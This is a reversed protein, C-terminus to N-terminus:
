NAESTKHTISEGTLDLLRGISLTKQPFLYNKCKREIIRLDSMLSAMQESDFEATPLWRRFDNISDNSSRMSEVVLEIPWAHHSFENIISRGESFDVVIVDLPQVGQALEDDLSLRVGFHTGLEFGDVRTDSRNAKYVPMYAEYKQEKLVTSWAKHALGSAKLLGANFERIENHRQFLMVAYNYVAEFYRQRHELEM